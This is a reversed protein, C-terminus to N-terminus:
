HGERAYSDLRSASKMIHNLIIDWTVASYYCIRTQNHERNVYRHYKGSTLKQCKFIMGAIDYEIGINSIHTIIRYKCFLLNHSRKLRHKTARPLFSSSLYSLLVVSLLDTWALFFDQNNKLYLCFNFCSMRTMFFLKNKWTAKWSM